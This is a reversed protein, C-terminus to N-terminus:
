MQVMKLMSVKDNVVLRVYYVGASKAGFAYKYVGAQQNTNVISEVRQGLSNYVDLKVMANEIISYNITTELSYPNPYSEFNAVLESKIISKVGNLTASLASDIYIVSDGVLYDNHISAQNAGIVIHDYTSDLGYGPINVLLTYWTGVPSAPLNYFAYNGNQNTTTTTLMVSGPNQELSVDVGPIPDGQVTTKGPYNADALIRGSISATGFLPTVYAPLNITQNVTNGCAFTIPAADQWLNAGNYYINSLYPYINSNPEVFIKYNGAPIGYLSFTGNNSIYAVSVPYILGASDASFAKVTGARVAKTTGLSDYQVNGTFLSYLSNLSVLVQDTGSCGNADTATLTYSTNAAPTAVPNAITASSLTASPTWVFTFPGAGNASGNLTTSSGSCISVDNGASVVPSTLTVNISASGSCGGASTETVALNGLVGNNWNVTVSNTNQGSTITGGAIAWNYSSGANAAIYYVIGTSGSCANGSPSIVPIPATLTINVSTTGVCGTSTTESVSLNGFAGNGWTVIVSDTNQGATITGGAIAWVYNSGANNVVSYLIGSSGACVSSSPTITVTPSTLTINVSSTGTCGSSTTETVSLNGFAGNNWNVTVSNTGQGATILGGAISWNYSSGANNAVTYVIGTAGACESNNPTITVTPSTLTINVSATGTCGAGTTESATLNGFAGNGWTVTVLDTGQGATISGGSITWNYTSGANNAVSYTIGTSGSCVSNSPTITVLPANLTINVSSSASCGSSSTETATINGISGNGWNVIVSNTAQGSVITGNNITWVYNSGANNAVAYNVNTAGSCVSTTPTISVTPANLTINASSTAMCGSATTETATINGFAGTGWNVTVSNTGSGATITGGAITWNYSSGANGTVAYNVNTAGACEATTPSISVVPTTLSINVSNTASCGMVNTESVNINGIAGYAWNVTLSNTTQGSVISGGSVTWNYSSGANNAVAYTINTSGSCVTSTPSISLAPSNLTVNLANTGSCGEISTQTISIIGFTSNSWNISISNTGQGSVITGGNVTWSYTSGAVPNVSAVENLAGACVSANATISPSISNVVINKVATASCTTSINTETCTVSAVSPNFWNVIISETGQGSVITGGNITWNYSNGSVLATNYAIGSAGNCITDVGNIVPSPYPNVYVTLTDSNFCGFQTYSTYIYTTSTDPNATTASTNVSSLGNSPTWVGSAGGISAANLNVSQGQCITPDAGINVIPNNHMVVSITDYNTCNNIDTGELIDIETQFKYLTDNSSENNQWFYDLAGSAILLLSDGACFDLSNSLIQVNPLAFTNVIVTDYPAQCGNYNFTSVYYVETDAPSVYYPLSGLDNLNSDFIRMSSGGMSRNGGGGQYYEEIYIDSGSCITTDYFTLAYNSPLSNVYFQVGTSDGCVPGTTTLSINVYNNGDNFTAGPAFVSDTGSQYLSDNVYWKYNVAGGAATFTRTDGACLNTGNGYTFYSSPPLCAVWVQAGAANGIGYGTAIANGLFEDVYAGIGNNEGGMGDNSITFYNIGDTSKWIKSPSQNGVFYIANATTKSSTFGPCSGYENFGNNTIVVNALVTDLAWLIAGGPNVASILLKNNFVNLRSYTGSWGTVVGLNVWPSNLNNKCYLNGNIELAYLKNNFTAYDVIHEPISDTGTWSNNDAANLPAKYFYTTNPIPIIPNNLNDVNSVTAEWGPNTVSGDSHWYITIAGAPNTATLVSPMSPAGNFTAINSAGTNEGDYVYLYDYGGESYFSTFNLQVFTGATAPYFTIVYDQYNDYYGGPGGSDFFNGAITTVTTSASLYTNVNGVYPRHVSVLLSDAGGSNVTAVTGVSYNNALGHANSFIKSWSTGNDPTSYVNGGLGTASSTGLYLHGGGSQTSAVSTIATDGSMNLLSMSIPMFSNVTDSAAYFGQLKGASPNYVGSFIYPGHKQLFQINTGTTNFGSAAIQTWNLQAFNIKAAFLFTLLLFIKKM